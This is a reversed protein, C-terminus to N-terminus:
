EKIIKRNIITGDSTEIRLVYIGKSLGLMDLAYVNTNLGDYNRLVRGEMTYLTIGKMNECEINVFDKTPNPQVSALQSTEEEIGTGSFHAELEIDDDVVFSYPNDTSVVQGNASWHVFLYGNTPEAKVAVVNNECNPQQIISAMGYNENSAAVKVDFVFETDFVNSFDQWCDANKYVDKCNCPVYLPITQLPFPRGSCEPPTTSKCVIRTLGSCGSFTGQEISTVSSPITISALSTCGRFAFEGISTVSNPISISTLGKCDSFASSGISTVSNPITISNLSLCHAFIGSGIEMLSNPLVISILGDCGMFACYHIRTVSNPISISTLDKCEAFANSGIEIVSDPINFSVLGMCSYFAFDGICTVTNPVITSKCGCVISNTYTSIIANCDNRSDYRPNDFDVKISILSICNSFAGNKIIQVSNPIIISTVGTCGYFAYEGISTVSNPISISTLGECGYFANDGISTVSNPITISNLGKCDSFASDRISTVSNPIITTKCGTILTCTAKEVIANCHNRSDYIPNDPDVVISTLNTCGNFPSGKGYTGIIRVSWPITIATLGICGGFANAGIETVSNPIEMATLGECGDFAGFEISTVSYPISISTVESCRHFAYGGIATVAYNKGDYDVLSPIVVDGSYWNSNTGGPDNYTVSVEYPMVNSKIKYYVGNVEFDYGLAWTREMSILMMLAFIFYRIHKM